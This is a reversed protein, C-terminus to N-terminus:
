FRIALVKYFFRLFERVIPRCGIVVMALPFQTGCKLNKEALVLLNAFLYDFNEIRPFALAITSGGIDGRTMVATRLRRGRRLNEQAGRANESAKSGRQNIRSWWMFGASARHLRQDIAASTKGQGMM